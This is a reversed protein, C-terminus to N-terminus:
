AYTGYAQGYYYCDVAQFTSNIFMKKKPIGITKHQGVEVGM